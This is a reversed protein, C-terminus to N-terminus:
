QPSILNPTLIKNISELCHARLKKHLSKLENTDIMAQANQQLFQKLEKQYHRKAKAIATRAQGEIVETWADTIVPVGGKNLAQIFSNAMVV